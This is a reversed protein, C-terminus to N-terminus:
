SATLAEVFDHGPRVAAPAFRAEVEALAVGDIFVRDGNLAEGPLLLLDGPRGEAVADLIDGGALLGAITVSPGFYRNRVTLVEVACGMRRSAEPVLEEFFPRMSIGTVVRIRDVGEVPAIRDKEAEFGDVLARVAGVGNERLTWDDYYGAEPVDRGAILFLEDAAYCWHQGRERSASARIGETQDLAAAAEDRRLPRVPRGLNYRTLGVPVVSLTLVGPGLAYLDRITRDLEEVDNWEPCLVVQTHVELGGELLERLQEVILGARDNKLLRIRVNPDTAHVSVYLPSIRQEVLRRLGRPGLNTLTVYSGYTFSLRFDDDRLWLPDRADPPNGDIFCFVCENACERIKDRAPVIGLSESPDRAIEYVVRDGDPGVAELEIEEDATRFMFDLGDRVREGNVTLIRTGIRLELAEAISGQGIEGIRVM